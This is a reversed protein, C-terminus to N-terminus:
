LIDNTMIKYYNNYDHGQIVRNRNSNFQSNIISRSADFGNVRIDLLDMITHPLDDTMYPRHQAELIKNWLEPHNEKFRDTGYMIMPIELMHRNLQGDGHGILKSDKEYVSEGHDSIYIILTDTDDFKKFIQTLIYDNYLVTDDYANREFDAKTDTPELEFKRWNPPVRRDYSAHSGMLHITYFQKDSTNQSKVKDIIPFLKEDYSDYLDSTSDRLYTYEKYDNRNALFNAVSVWNGSSEQNSLWSTHYGAKKLIDILNLTNYWKDPNEYHHLSYIESLSATTYAHPSVVDTFVAIKQNKAFQDLEPTTDRDYGYLHMHNRNESEGIIFVINPIGKGVHQVVLNENKANTLKDFNELEERQQIADKMAYYVSQVPMAYNKMTNKAIFVISCICGICMFVTSVTFFKSKSNIKTKIYYCLGYILLLILIVISNAVSIYTSIYEIAESYTTELIPIIFAPTINSKYMYAIYIGVVDSLIVLFSFIYYLIKRLWIIKIRNCIYSFLTFIFLYLCLCLLSHAIFELKKGFKQYYGIYNVKMIIEPIITIFLLSYIVIFNSHLTEKISNLGERIRRM